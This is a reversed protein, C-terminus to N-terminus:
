NVGQNLLEGYYQIIDEDTIEDTSIEDHSKDGRANQWPRENHTIIELEYGSFRGYIRYIMDLILREQSDIDEFESSEVEYFERRKMAKYLTRFVPGHIWAEPNEEFLRHNQLVLNWVYAYYTLKQVQIESLNPNKTLFYRGTQTANEM